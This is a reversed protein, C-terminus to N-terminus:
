MSVKIPRHLYGLVPAADFEAVQHRAWRAPLWPSPVFEGPGRNSLTRWLEPLQTHW